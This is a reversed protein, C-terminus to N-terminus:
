LENTVAFLKGLREEDNQKKMDRYVADVMEQIKQSLELKLVDLAGTLEHKSAIDDINLKSSKKEGGSGGGFPNM